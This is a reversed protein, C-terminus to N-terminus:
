PKTAMVIYYRTLYAKYENDSLPGISIRGHVMRGDEGRPMAEPPDALLAGCRIMAFGAQRLTRTIEHATYFRLHGRDMIGSKAYDWRGDALMLVTEYHQLNPVSAVLAGGTGLVRFLEKLCAIPDRVRALSDDCLICDFFNEPFSDRIASADGEIVNDLVSRAAAAAVPDSEVGMVTASQRQRIAAGRRGDGCGYDLIKRAATPVFPLLADWAPTKELVEM